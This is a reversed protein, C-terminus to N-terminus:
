RPNGAYYMAVTLAPLWEDDLFEIQTGGVFPRPKPRPVDVWAGHKAKELAITSLEKELGSMRIEELQTGDSIPVREEYQTFYGTKNFSMERSRGKSDFSINILVVARRIRQKRMDDMWRYHVGIGRAGQLLSRRLDSDAPLEKIVDLIHAEVEPSNAKEQSCAPQALLAVLLILITKPMSMRKSLISRSANRKFNSDKAKPSVLGM